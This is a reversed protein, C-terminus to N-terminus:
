INPWIPAIVIVEDGTRVVSQVSMMVALMASGPVTIREVDVDAQMRRAHWVRIAERLKLLGRSPTYFTMGGDLARKAADRIFAPTPLDSEGFWLPILGQRGIGRRSILGIGSPLIAAVESRLPDNMPAEDKTMTRRGYDM